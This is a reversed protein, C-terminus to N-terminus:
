KVNKMLKWVMVEMTLRPNMNAQIDRQANQIIKIKDPISKIDIRAALSLLDALMDRNIVKQPSYGCIILDRLWTKMIDLAESIMDKKGALREAFLMAKITKDGAELLDEMVELLWKRWRLWKRFDEPGSNVIKGPCTMAIPCVGAAEDEDMSCKEMLIEKIVAESVPAFRIIQCRSVITPLFDSKKLGTLIIVTNDPPEELTKLLANAAERNMLNAKEIVAVRIEAEYPKMYLVRGLERIRDIKIYAGDPSVRHIDPHNGSRIRSCSRCKCVFFKGPADQDECYVARNHCNLAMAFIDAAHRKGTGDMGTFLFAHPVKGKKLIAFLKDLAKRNRIHITM